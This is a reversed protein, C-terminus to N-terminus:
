DACKVNNAADITQYMYRQTTDIHLRLTKVPRLLQVPESPKLSGNEM